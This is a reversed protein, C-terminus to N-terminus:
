PRILYLESGSAVAGLSPSVAVRVPATAAPSFTYRYRATVKGDPGLRHILGNEDAALLLGGDGAFALVVAGLNGATSVGSGNFRTVEGTTSVHLLSQNLVACGAPPGGLNFEKLEFKKKGGPVIQILSGDSRGTYFEPNPKGDLDAAAFTLAIPAELSSTLLPEANRDYIRLYYYECGVGLEDAGDGDLDAAAAFTAPHLVPFRRRIKGDAADLSVFMWSTTGAIIVPPKGPEFNATFITRILARHMNGFPMDTRWLERGGADLAVLTGTETPGDLPLLIAAPTAPLLGVLYRAAGAAGPYPAVASVKRKFQHQLRIKGDAGVVQFEGTDTGALVQDGDAALSTINGNLKLPALREAEVKAPMAPATGAVQAAILNTLKAPEIKLEAFTAERDGGPLPAGTFDTLRKVGTALLGRRDLKFFDADLEFNGLRLKGTGILGASKGAGTRWLSEGLRDVPAPKGANLRNLFFVKGGPKLRGAHRQSLVATNSGGTEAYAGFYGPERANSGDDFQSHVSTKAGTGEAVAFEFVKEGAPTIRDFQWNRGEARPRGLVRWRCEFLYDGDQRAALEDLVWLGDGTEIAIHRKWDCGNYEELLLSLAAGRADERKARGLIQSFSKPDKLTRAWGTSQGNRLISISNHDDPFKRIYDRDALLDFQGVVYAGIANADYHGHPGGNIGTVFLYEDSAPNWGSRFIAKDLAPRPYKIDTKLAEFKDARVPFLQLGLSEKGPTALDPPMAALDGSEAPMYHKQYKALRDYYFKSEGSDLLETWSKIMRMMGSVTIGRHVPYTDGLGPTGGRPDVFSYTYQMYDRIAPTDFFNRGFKGSGYAYYTFIELVHFQYALSDEPSFVSDKVCDMGYEAVQKWYVAPKFGARKQLFEANFYMARMAMMPHNTMYQRKQTNYLLQPLKMDGNEMIEESIFRSVEAALLQARDDFAPSEDVADVAAPFRHFQFHPSTRRFDLAKFYNERILQMMAVFAAAYADDGTLLYDAAAGDLVTLAMQNNGGKAYYNTLWPVYEGAARSTKAGPCDIFHHVTSVKAPFRKVFAALAADAAAVTTGGLYIAGTGGGFIDPITRLEYGGPNAALLKLISLRRAIDNAFPGGTLLLAKGSALAEKPELVPCTVGWKERLLKQLRAPFDAFEGPSNAVIVMGKDLEVRRPSVYPVLDPPLSKSILRGSDKVPAYYDEAAPAAFSLAFLCCLLIRKM